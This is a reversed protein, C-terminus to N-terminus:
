SPLPGNEPHLLGHPEGYYDSQILVAGGDPPHMWFSDSWHCAFTFGADACRQMAARMVETAEDRTM